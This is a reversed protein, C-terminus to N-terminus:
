EITSFLRSKKNKQEKKKCFMCKLNTIECVVYSYTTIKTFNRIKHSYNM